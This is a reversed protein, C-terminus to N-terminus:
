DQWLSYNYNKFQKKRRFSKHIRSYSTNSMLYNLNEVLQISASVKKYTWKIFMHWYTYSKTHKKEQRHTFSHFQNTGPLTVQTPVTYTVELDHMYNSTCPYNGKRGYYCAATLIAMNDNSIRFQITLWSKNTSTL